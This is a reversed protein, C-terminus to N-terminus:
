SNENLIGWAHRAYIGNLGKAYNTLVKKGLGNKDGCRFLARALFIEKLERNRLDDIEKIHEYHKIDMKKFADKYDDVDYGQMDDMELLKELVDNAKDSKINEFAVAVARFHSFYDGPQLEKAKEIIPSLGAEVKTNGLNIIHSDLKSLRKEYGHGAFHWGEDWETYKKIEDYIVRWGMNNKLVALISAYIIKDNHNNAKTFRESILESTKKHNTLLVELKEYNNVVADAADQFQSDSFAVTNKDTLVREPLSGIEVLHKQIKKIDIQRIEKNENVATAALYGVAYGQNQLCPQMRLVPMADREASAGLGTTILGKIGKPLLSRLPMDAHYFRHRETEPKLTFIPDITYGHTDFSAYHHSITDDYKRKNMIDYTSVTYEGVIRRRERTQPLKCLDYKGSYRKKGQVYIRSTDLIDSEDLFTWDTNNKVQGPFRPALGAGQVAVSKADVFQYKAGSAIALDASGSSDIAVKCLVVGRGFPTSVVVGKVTNNEVWTGSGIAGFWIDGGADLIEKRYWETKWDFVWGGTDKIQRPHDSPAMERVGDSIIRTFGERNGDWYYEMHGMTGIGGLGHLYELVLTKAGHRGAGIGAPAGATGGGSVVVDYEVLVPLTTASHKVYGKDLIPRLPRLFEKIEGKNLSNKSMQSKGSITGSIKVSKSLGVSYDGLIEGLEMLAVASNLKKASERNVDACGSLILLNEIKKPIFAEIPIQSINDGSGNFGKECIIKYPPLYHILDSCDTQEIDFTKTRIKQEVEMLSAYSNDKLDFQFQYELVDYSQGKFVQHEKFEKIGVIEKENKPNNDIYRYQFDRTKYSHEKTTIPEPRKKVSIIEHSERISNGVVTFFFNVGKLSYQKIKAGAMKAIEAGHTADIVVKAKIAQRGSRGVIVAGAVTNDSDYLLNTAYCSYVFDVNNEILENDLITKVEMPTLSKEKFIKKSLETNPIEGDELWYKYTGCIDDGLYPLYGVLFVSCGKKAAASAAAVAGSSGGIVLVDVDALVPIERESEYCYKEDKGSKGPYIFSYGLTGAAVTGLATTQIFERRKM